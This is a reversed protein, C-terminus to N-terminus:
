ERDLGKIRGHQGIMELRQALSTADTIEKLTFYLLSFGLFLLAWIFNAISALVFTNIYVSWRDLVTQDTTVLWNIIKFITTVIASNSLSFFLVGLLLILSILGVSKWYADKLLSFLRSLAQYPFHNEYFVVSSYLLVLPLILLSVFFVAGSLYSICMMIFVTSMALWLYNLWNAAQGLEKQISLFVALGLSFIMFGGMFKIIYLEEENGAYLLIFNYANLVWDEKIFPLIDEVEATGFSYIVTTYLLASGFVATLIWKINRTLLTFLENIIETNTRIKGTDLQYIRSPIIPRNKEYFDVLGLKYRYWPYWVFYALVFVLCLFIFLARIVDPTETQRTLFGELFGAIVFLPVTGVMIKAGRRASQQFSQMRTYTGPFAAGQGMTIGAASAIVIASIELTGHIWITLFSEQFVGHHVFFYQFCGVMIGNSVLVVLSGIGFFVGMAFALFAVMLNNFTIGLFMDFQGKQKYVAMPDGSEINAQTMEVYNEGLIVQAFEIDMACSLLGIAFSLCFAFFALRFAKRSNYIEQPLEDTWFHLLQGIRSKRNKYLKLYVRQALGNLYVRVSRNPYFTRSYALDDTIQIFLDRLRDADKADGQLTSEFELWKEKNQKIFQTERM